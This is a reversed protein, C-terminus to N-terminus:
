LPPEANKILDLFYSEFWQGAQPAGQASDIGRCSEDFRPQTVDSTGDSDGPPKVWFYADIGVEPEARPREGLGAGKVNCWSGWRKRMNGKGNRSTDIIFGKHKIGVVRLSAAVKRVYAHEDPCPNSPELKRGEHGTLTNFNAVNTAFGRVKHAGGAMALVKNFIQVMRIRNQDWGLWGAHAADLYISVNPLALKRIAYAISNIYASESATCKPVGLNTALNALSDPELIVVIRQDPHAQFQAAIPDIFEVKYRAEGNEKVSLEGASSKASCDRNPLDYVVFVPVTVQGNRMQQQKADDLWRSVSAVQAITDIWLATPYAEIKRIQAADAPHTKATSEV